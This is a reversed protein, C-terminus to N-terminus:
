IEDFINKLPLLNPSIFSLFVSCNLFRTAIYNAWDTTMSIGHDFWKKFRLRHLYKITPFVEIKDHGYSVFIYAEDGNYADFPSEIKFKNESIKNNSYIM